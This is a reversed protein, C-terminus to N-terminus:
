ERGHSSLALLCNQSLCSSLGWWSESGPSKAEVIALFLNRNIFSDPSHYKRVAAQALVGVLLLHELKMQLKVLYVRLFISSVTANKIWVRQEWDLSNWQKNLTRRWFAIRQPGLVILVM